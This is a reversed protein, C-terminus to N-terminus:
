LRRKFSIFVDRRMEPFEEVYCRLNEKFEKNQNRDQAQGDMVWVAKSRPVPHKQQHRGGDGPSDSVSAHGRRMKSTHTSHVCDCVSTVWCVADRDCSGWARINSRLHPSIRIVSRLRMEDQLRSSLVYSLIYTVYSRSKFCTRRWTTRRTNEARWVAIKSDTLFAADGAAGTSQDGRCDATIVGSQRKGWVCVAPLENHGKISRFWGQFANKKLIFSSPRAVNKAAAWDPKAERRSPKTSISSVM